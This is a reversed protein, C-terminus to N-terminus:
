VKAAVEAEEDPHGHHTKSLHRLEEQIHGQDQGAGGQVQPAHGALGRDCPRTLLERPNIDEFSRLVLILIGNNVAVSFTLLTLTQSNFSFVLLQIDQVIM